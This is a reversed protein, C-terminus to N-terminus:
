GYIQFLTIAVRRLPRCLGAARLPFELGMYSEPYKASPVTRLNSHPVRQLYLLVSPIPDNAM